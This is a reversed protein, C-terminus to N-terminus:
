GELPEKMFAATGCGSEELELGFQRAIEGLPQEGWDTYAYALVRPCSSRLHRLMRMARELPAETLRGLMLLALAYRRAGGDWQEIDFIDAQTFNAAFRPLLLRAHELARGNSDVGYPVLDSRGECAKALLIGNGCGLDLVNGSEGALSRRALALIPEHLVDMAEESAFGNDAYRWAPGAGEPAGHALGRQYERSRTLMPRKPPQYPFHLGVAGEEPYATGAWQVVSKGATADTRTSLKMLPSKVEAIGHLASWEVPWTLIDAIWEVEEAYGARQGTELLRKGFEISLSCDFRCPLHPVARVGLWRWLINALPPVGDPLEIRVGYDIQRSPTNEAMAWTTDISQQQDWVERFFGRCCPPYGLLAGVTEQDGATWARRFQEVRDMAGVVVCVMGSVYAPLSAATGGFYADGAELQSASLRAAEWGPILAALDSPSVWLLGCERIGAAVSLWEVDLWARMVRAVRPEWAQRAPESVWSYRTFDPLVFPLRERAPLPAVALSIGYLTSAKAGV